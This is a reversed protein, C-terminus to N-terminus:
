VSVGGTLLDQMLGNKISRYIDSGIPVFTSLSVATGYVKM